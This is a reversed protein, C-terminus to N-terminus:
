GIASPRRVFRRVARLDRLNVCIAPARSCRADVRGPAVQLRTAAHFVYFGPTPPFFANSALNLGGGGDYSEVDWIAKVYQNQVITQGNTKYVEFCVNSLTVGSSGTTGGASLGNTYSGM